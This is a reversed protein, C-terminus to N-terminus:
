DFSQPTDCGWCKFCTLLGHPIRWDVPGFPHKQPGMVELRCVAKPGFLQLGTNLPVMLIIVADARNFEAFFRQGVIM